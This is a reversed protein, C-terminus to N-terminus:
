CMTKSKNGMPVIKRFKEGAPAFPVLLNTLVIAAIFLLAVVVYSFGQDPLGYQLAPGKGTILLVTISYVLIIAAVVWLNPCFRPWGVLTFLLFVPLIHIVIQLIIALVIGQEQVEQLLASKTFFAVIVVIIAGVLVFISLAWLDSAIRADFEGGAVAFAVFFILELFLIWYTFYFVVGSLRGGDSLVSAFITVIILIVWTIAIFVALM